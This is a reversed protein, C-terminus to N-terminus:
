FPVMGVVPLEFTTENKKILYRVGKILERNIHVVSVNQVAVGDVLEVSTM